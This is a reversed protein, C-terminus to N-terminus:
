QFAYQAVWASRLMSVPRMLKMAISLYASRYPM